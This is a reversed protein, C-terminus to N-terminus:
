IAMTQQETLGEAALQRSRIKDLQDQTLPPLLRADFEYAHGMVTPQGDTDVSVAGTRSAFKRHQVRPFTMGLLADLFPEPFHWADEMDDYFMMQTYTQGDIHFSLVESGRERRDRNNCRLSVRVLRRMRQVMNLSDYEKMFDKNDGNKRIAAILTDDSHSPNIEMGLQAAKQEIYLRRVTRSM